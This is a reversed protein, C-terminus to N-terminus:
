PSQDKEKRAARERRREERRRRRERRRKRTRESTVLIHQNRASLDCNFCGVILVIVVAIAYFVTWTTRGEARHRNSEALTYYVTEGVRLEDIEGGFTNNWTTITVTKGQLTEKLEDFTAFAKKEGVLFNQVREYTQGSALTLQIVYHYRRRRGARRDREVRRVTDTVTVTNEATLPQYAWMFAGWVATVGLLIAGYIIIYTIIHAKLAKKRKERRKKQSAKSM